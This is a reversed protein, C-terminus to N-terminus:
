LLLLFMFSKVLKSVRKELWKYLPIAIAMTFVVPLFTSTYTANVTMGFLNLDVGQITPYLMAAGVLFGFVPDIAFKKALNMGLLMPMFYFIADGIANFLQYYGSDSPLGCLVAISLIGKIIGAACMLNMLPAMAAMVINVVQMLPNKKQAASADSNKVQGSDGADVGLVECVDLYVDHVHEGIVVM